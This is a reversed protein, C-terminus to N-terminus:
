RVYGLNRLRRLTEPDERVVPRLTRTWIRLEVGSPWRGPWTDTELAAVEIERGAEGERYPRKGGLLVAGPAVPRGDRTLEIRTLAGVDGEVLFGKAFVDTRLEFTLRRGDLEVRDEPGLFLPSWGSPEQALEVRGAVTSGQGTGSATPAVVIRLGSLERDLHRLIEPALRAVVEPREPALNRREEPDAELDFLEVRDLRGLDLRWLHAEVADTPEFPAQRNFLVLKHPPLVVGARLPGRGFHRAYLARHPWPREGTLPPLLDIGEAEPPVEAGVAALVTPLLDLLSVPEAIRVGAPVPGSDWRLILPVRIQEQYLTEGHKWGGHDYLEEGHDATLVVLTHALVEPDLVELLKGVFRDVYAVEGDYLASMWAVDAAADRPSPRLAVAGTYLGHVSDGTLPGAYGGEGVATLWPWRREDNAPNAYPDHPDLFHAYLFFPREPFRAQQERLWPAARDLITDAHLRLSAVEPPPTYFAEFGRAFGNGEHLTPNAYFGATAYGLDALREALVPVDEPLAFSGAKGRNLVGPSRGTMLGVMSPLTWPAPAYARDFVTGREALLRAIAPSTHRVYGYPTLRDARLTDVVLIVVNPRSGSLRGPAGGAEGGGAGCSLSGGAVTLVSLALLVRLWRALLAPSARHLPTEACLRRAVSLRLPRPTPRPLSRTM